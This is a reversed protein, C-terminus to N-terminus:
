RGGGGVDGGWRYRHANESEGHCWRRSCIGVVVVGVGVGVCVERDMRISLGYMKEPSVIELTM